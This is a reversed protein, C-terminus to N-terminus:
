HSPVDSRTLTEQAAETLHDWLDDIREDKLMDAPVAGLAESEARLWRRRAAQDPHLRALCRQVAVIRKLAELEGMTMTKPPQDAWAAIDAETRGVAEAAEAASLGLDDAADQFFAAFQRLGVRQWAVNREAAGLALVLPSNARLLGGDPNDALLAEAMADPEMALIAEWQDFVHSLDPHKLRLVPVLQLAREALNPNEAVFEVLARHLELQRGEDVMFPNSAM